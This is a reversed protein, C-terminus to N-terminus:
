ALALEIWDATSATGVSIYPVGSVVAFQGIYLPATSITTRAATPVIQFTPWAGSTRARRYETGAPPINGSASEVFFSQYEGGGIARRRHVLMGLLITGAPANVSGQSGDWRYDGPVISNDTVNPNIVLPLVGGLGFAGTLMIRGATGDVASSQVATGSLTGNLAPSDLVAAYVDVRGNTRSFVNGAISAPFGPIDAADNVYISGSFAALDDLNLAADSETMIVGSIKSTEMGEFFVASAQQLTPLSLFVGRLDVFGGPKANKFVSVGAHNEATHVTLGRVTSNGSDGIFRIMNKLGPSQSTEFHGNLSLNWSRATATMYMDINANDFALFYCAGDFAHNKDNCLFVSPGGGNNRYENGSHRNATFSVVDGLSRTVTVYDSTPIAYNGGGDFIAAYANSSTNANAWRCETDCTTESGSNFYGAQSFSGLTDIDTLKNNGCTETGRPGIQIGCLPVVGSANTIMLGAIDLWRSSLGDVVAKGNATGILVAGYGEVRLPRPGRRNTFNITTVAYENPRIVLKETATSANSGISTAVYAFSANIAATMDTVAPTVNEAWHEPTVMDAPVFGPLDSIATAGTQALYNLGAATVVMGDPVTNGADVWAVFAARTTFNVNSRINAVVAAKGSETLSASNINLNWGPVAPVPNNLLESLTYSAASGLQIEGIRVEKVAFLGSTVASAVRYSLFVDYRTGRLGASNPWLTFTDPLVGGEDLAISFSAPPVAGGAEADPASLVFRLRGSSPDSGDPMVISGTVPTQTIPM